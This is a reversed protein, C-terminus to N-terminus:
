SVEGRRTRSSNLGRIGERNVHLHLEEFSSYFVTFFFFGQRRKFHRSIATFLHGNSQKKRSTLGGRPFLISSSPRIAGARAHAHERGDETELGRKMLLLLFYGRAQREDHM